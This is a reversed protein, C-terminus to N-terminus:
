ADKSGMHEKIIAAIVYIGAGVLILAVLTAMPRLMPKIVVDCGITLVCLIDTVLLVLFSFMIFYLVLGVFESLRVM